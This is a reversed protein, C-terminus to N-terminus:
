KTAISNPVGFLSLICVRHIKELSDGSITFGYDKPVFSQIKISKDTQLTVRQIVPSCNYALSYQLTNEAILDLSSGTVYTVWDSSGMEDDRYTTLNFPIWLGGILDYWHESGDVFRYALSNQVGVVIQEPAPKNPFNAIMDYATARINTSSLTDIYADNRLSHDSADQYVYKTRGEVTGTLEGFCRLNMIQLAVDGPYAVEAKSGIEYMDSALVFDGYYTQLWASMIRVDDDNQIADIMNSLKSILSSISGGQILVPVLGSAGTPGLTSGNVVWSSFEYLYHPVYMMVGGPLGAADSDTYIHRFIWSAKKFLAINNPLAFGALRAIQINLNGVNNAYNSAETSFEAGGYAAKLATHPIVNTEVSATNVLDLGRKIHGILAIIDAMAREYCILDAYEFPVSSTYRGRVKNYLIVGAQNIPSSADHTYGTYSDIHVILVNEAEQGTQIHGGNVQASSNCMVNWGQKTFHFTPVNAVSALLTADNNYWDFSNQFKPKKSNGEDKHDNGNDRGHDGKRRKKNKDFHPKFGNKKQAKSGDDHADERPLADKKPEINAM